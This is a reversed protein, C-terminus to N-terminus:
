NIKGHNNSNITTNDKYEALIHLLPLVHVLPWLLKAFAVDFGGRGRRPPHSGDDLVINETHGPTEVVLLVNNNICGHVM